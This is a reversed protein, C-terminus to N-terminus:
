HDKLHFHRTTNEPQALVTGPLGLVLKKLLPTKFDEAAKQHFSYKDRLIQVNEKHSTFIKQTSTPWISHNLFFGIIGGQSVSFFADL